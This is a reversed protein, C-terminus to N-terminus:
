KGYDRESAEENNIEHTAEIQHLQSKKDCKHGPEWPGRCRFCIGKKLKDEKKKQAEKSLCQHGRSWKGKCFYCEKEKHDNRSNNDRHETTASSNKSREKSDNSEVMKAKRIAEELNTPEHPKVSHRTSDKLGEIFIHTLRKQSLDPVMVSLEQFKRAYGEVTGIQRLQTLEQFYWETDKDDFRSMLNQSFEEYSKVDKHGLSIHGHTWWDHAAGELHVIAFQLADEEIM